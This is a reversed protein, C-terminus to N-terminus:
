LMFDQQWSPSSGKVAVTTSKVHQLNLTVYSHYKETACVCCMDRTLWFDTNLLLASFSPKFCIGVRAANAFINVLYTLNRWHRSALFRNGCLGIFLYALRNIPRHKAMRLQWSTETTRPPLRRAAADLPLRPSAFFRWPFGHPVFILFNPSLNLQHKDLFTGVLTKLSLFHCAPGTRHTWSSTLVDTKPLRVKGSRHGM